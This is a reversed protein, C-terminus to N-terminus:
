IKISRSIYTSYSYIILNLIALSLIITSFTAYKGDEKKLYEIFFPLNTDVVQDRLTSEQMLQM